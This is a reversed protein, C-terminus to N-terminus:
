FVLFFDEAILGSNQRYPRCEYHSNQHIPRTFWSTTNKLFPVAFIESQMLNKVAIPYKESFIALTEIFDYLRLIFRSANEYDGNRFIYMFIKRISSTSRNSFVIIKEEEM